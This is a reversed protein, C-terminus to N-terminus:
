RFKILVGDLNNKRPIERLLLDDKLVLIRDDTLKVRNGERFIEYRIRERKNGVFYMDSYNIENGKLKGDFIISEKEKFLLLPLKLNHEIRRAFNPDEKRVSKLVEKGLEITRKCNFSCPHHHILFYTHDMPINNCYFSFETTNKYIEVPLNYDRPSRDIFFDICCYPFGLIKGYIKHDYMPNNIQKGEVILNYWNFKRAASVLKKSKSIYVHVIGEKSHDLPVCIGRTTSLQERQEIRKLVEESPTIFKYNTHGMHLGYKDCMDRYRLLDAQLVGEDMLPKVDDLVAIFMSLQPYGLGVYDKCVESANKDPQYSEFM